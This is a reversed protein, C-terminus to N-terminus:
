KSTELDIKLYFNNFNSLIELALNKKILLLVKILHVCIKKEKQSHILFSPCDYFIEAKEEDIILHFERDNDLIISNVKIPDERIYILNIKNNPFIESKQFLKEGFEGILLESFTKKIM